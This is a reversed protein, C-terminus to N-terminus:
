RADPHFLHVAEWDNTAVPWNDATWNLPMLDLKSDGFAGYAPSWAGADYYHYTLWDVGNERLIGVHGPGTYKGTGELFLSGGNNAMDVGSEDLYPGTISTARGMRINYTSNVGSCCSGWNAWLYYYGGRRFLYSAEISSNYALHYTPSNPSIRLGTNPNLQVLYIGNWYSGFAMWLNGSGDWCFSPDITNYPSGNGSSIVPGQDVWRYSPDSPNLTANTALGIASVQSGFTSVAYYLFYRGNWFFVDPAWFIGAFGPAANTTWAPAHAFVAPGPSWLIKDPSTKTSIGQGTYFVYYNSGCQIMTSPDHTDLFGRINLGARAPFFGLFVAGFFLCVFLASGAASRM